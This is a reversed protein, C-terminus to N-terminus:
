RRAEPTKIFPEYDAPDMLNDLQTLDETKIKIMWAQGYPDKAFLDLQDSLAQNAQVVEGSIPAYLDVAAKVSEIVGFPSEQTVATGPGPLEIFVIDGLQEVAFASIGVTVINTKEELRAWEHSETFRLDKPIM